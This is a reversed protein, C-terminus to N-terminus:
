NEETVLELNPVGCPDPRPNDIADLLAAFVARLQALRNPPMHGRM